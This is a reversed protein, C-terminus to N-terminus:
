CESVAIEAYNDNSNDIAGMSLGESVAIEAYSDNNNDIAGMSLGESVAIEAYNSDVAGISLGGGGAMLQSTVNNDSFSPTPPVMLPAPAAPRRRSAERAIGAVGELWWPIGGGSGGGESDGVVEEMQVETINNARKLIAIVKFRAGPLVLVEEESAAAAAVAAETAAEPDAATNDGSFASYEQISIGNRVNSLEFVTREGLDAGIGLFDICQLVDPEKSTSTFGDWTVEDGVQCMGIIEAYPRKVGRYLKGDLSVRNVKLLAQLLINIYPLYHPIMATNGAGRDRLAANMKLFLPIDQTYLHIAAIEEIELTTTPHRKQYSTAFAFAKDVWEKATASDTGGHKAAMAAAAALSLQPASALLAALQVPPGVIEYPTEPLDGDDNKAMIHIYISNISATNEPKGGAIRMSNRQRHSEGGAVAGTDYLHTQEGNHELYAGEEPQPSASASSGPIGEYFSPRLLPRGTGYIIHDDGHQRPLRGDGGGYEERGVVGDEGDISTIQCLTKSVQDIMNAFAVDNQLVSGTFGYWLKSGLLLGLWGSATYGDELMLPIMPKQSTHAYSAESHCQESKQYSQSMCYVFVDSNEVASARKAVNVSAAGAHELDCFVRFGYNQFGKCIQKAINVDASSYSLMVNYSSATSSLAGIADMFHSSGLGPIVDLDEAAPDIAFTDYTSEYEPSFTPNVFGAQGGVAGVLEQRSRNKGLYYVGVFLAVLLVAVIPVIIAISSGTPVDNNPESGDFSAEVSPTTSVTGGDDDNFYDRM